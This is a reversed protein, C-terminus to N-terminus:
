ELKDLTLQFSPIFEKIFEDVVPMNMNELSKKTTEFADTFERNGVKIEEMCKTLASIKDGAKVYKWLLEDKENYHLIDDYYHRLSQPLLSLLKEEALNEVKKYADCIEPNFYKIPTPLDGTIIESSDHYMGLVAGRDANLNEGFKDNHMLILCHTFMAVQLSHESINENFTNNMLGWRNIYKMRSIMAFFHSNSM